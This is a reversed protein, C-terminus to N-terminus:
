LSDIRSLYDDYALGIGTDISIQPSWGLSRLYENCLLKRPAGDPMSHDWEISGTYGVRECIVTLLEAISVERNSGINIIPPRDEDFLKLRNSLLHQMLYVTADAFDDSFLFDRKAQGTGWAEVTNGLTKAEHVKRILAPLVHSNQLDYNDGYGYLNTPMVSLYKTGYQRNYAWCLEVGAIKSIAYPRNTPEPLGTLLYEEKIPQQCNRPYICSSGLFILNEVGASFSGNIVNNQITLNESIFRAPETNNANIGGVRAAALIVVHPRESELLRYTDEQSLLDLDSHTRVVINDYALKTLSRLIASGALGTHGALYILVSRNM